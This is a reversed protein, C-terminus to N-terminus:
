VGLGACVHRQTHIQGAHVTCPRLDRVALLTLRNLRVSPDGVICALGGCVSGRFSGSVLHTADTLKLTMVHNRMSSSPALEDPLTENDADGCILMRKPRLRTRAAVASEFSALNTIRITSLRSDVLTQCHQSCPRLVQKDKRSLAAFVLDAALEPLAQLLDPEIAQEM